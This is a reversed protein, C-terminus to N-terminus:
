DTLDLVIRHEQEIPGGKSGTVEVAQREHWGMRVKAWFIMAATNGRKAAAFLAKGITANAKTMGLDLEDRYRSRLVTHSVGVLRAIQDQPIGVASLEEVLRRQEDTPVHPKRGAGPRKGGPVRWRTLRAATAM